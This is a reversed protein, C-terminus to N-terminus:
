KQADMTNGTTFNYFNDLLDIKVNYEKKAM